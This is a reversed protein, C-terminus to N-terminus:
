QLHKYKFKNILSIKQINKHITLILMNFTSPMLAFIITLTIIITLLKILITWAIGMNDLYFLLTVSIFFTVIPVIFIAYWNFKVKEARYGLIAYAVTSIVRQLLSAVAAGVYGWKPIFIMNLAVNLIAGSVSVISFIHTNSLFLPGAVFIYVGQFVFVYTLFPVVKYSDHFNHSAMIVIVEKSFLAITMGLISFIVVAISTLRVIKSRGEEGKAFQEFAYPSYAQSFATVVMSQISAIQFGVSYIGTAAVTLLKNIFIRDVMSM